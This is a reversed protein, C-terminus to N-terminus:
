MTCCVTETPRGAARHRPLIHLIRLMPCTLREERDDLCFAQMGQSVELPGRPIKSCQSLANLRDHKSLIHFTVVWPLKERSQVLTIYRRRSTDTFLLAGSSSNMGSFKSRHPNPIPTTELSYNM